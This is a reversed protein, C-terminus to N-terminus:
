ITSFSWPGGGGNTARWSNKRLSTTSPTRFTTVLLSEIAIFLAGCSLQVNQLDQLSGMDNHVPLAIYLYRLDDVLPVAVHVKNNRNNTEHKNRGNGQYMRRENWNTKPTPQKHATMTNDNGNNNRRSITATTSMSCQEHWPVSWLNQIPPWLDWLDTTFSAAGAISILTGCTLFQMNSLQWIGFGIIM